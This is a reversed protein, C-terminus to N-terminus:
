IACNRQRKGDYAQIIVALCTNENNIIVSWDLVRAARGTERRVERAMLTATRQLEKRSYQTM